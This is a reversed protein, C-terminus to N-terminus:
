KIRSLLEASPIKRQALLLASLKRTMENVESQSGPKKLLDAAQKLPRRLAAITEAGYEEESLNELADTVTRLLSLEIATAKIELQEAKMFQASIKLVGTERNWSYQNESLKKGDLTVEIEKPLFCGDNATLKATWDTNTQPREAEMSIKDLKETVQIAQITPVSAAEITLNQGLLAEAKVTIKGTKSSYVYDKDSVLTRDDLTVKITEPLSTYAEASLTGKWETWTSPENSTIILGELETHLTVPEIRKVATGSVTLRSGLLTEGPISVTGEERDYVYKSGDLTQEDLKVTITQPWAYWADPQGFHIIADSWTKLDPNSISVHDVEDVFEIPKSSKSGCGVVSLVETGSLADKGITITGAKSDYTWSESDLAEDDARLVITEPLDYWEPVSLQLILSEDQIPLSISSASLTLDKGEVSLDMRTQTTTLHIALAKGIMKDAPISLEGTRSNYSYDSSALEKGDISVSITENLAYRDSPVFVATFATNNKAKFEPVASLKPNGSLEVTIPSEDLIGDAQIQLTEARLASSSVTIKGSARDYAFDEGANLARDDAKLVITEPLLYGATPHLIASYETNTKLTDDSELTLHNLKEDMKMPQVVPIGSASLELKQGLLATGNVHISGATKDYTWVSDDLPTGDLKLVITEPLEFYANASLVATWDKWSVPKEGSITLNSLRSDVTLEIENHVATGEIRLQTFLAQEAKIRIEGASADFTYFDTNLEKGDAILRLDKAAPLGYFQSEPHLTIGLDQRTKLEDSQTSVHQIQNDLQISDHREAASAEITLIEAGNLQDITLTVTGTEKNWTYASSALTSNDAKHIVISEPLDCFSDAQLHLEATKTNASLAISNESLSLHNGTLNVDIRTQITHVVIKLSTGKLSEAPISLNGTDAQYTYLSSDLLANDMYVEVSDSLAYRDKAIFTQKFDHNKQVQVDPDKLTVHDIGEYTLPIQREDLVAKARITLSSGKLYSGHIEIKASSGIGGEVSYTFADEPLPQGDVLLEITQPCLYGSAATLVASFDSNTKPASDTLTLHEDLEKVLEMDVKLDVASASVKVSDGSLADGSITITGTEKNYTFAEFPKGDMTVDISDPLGYWAATPCLTGQWDTWTKLSEGELSLNHLDKELAMNQVVKEPTGSIILEYFRMQSAPITIIGTKNDYAFQDSSLVKGDGNLEVTKPYQINKADPNLELAIKGDQLTKLSDASAHFGSINVTVGVPDHIESASATIKLVCGTSLAEQTFTLSGTQSNYTYSNPDLVKGDRLVSVSQPLSYFDDAILEVTNENETLKLETKSLHLYTGELELAMKERLDAVGRIVIKGPQNMLESSLTITGDMQSYTYLSSNVPSNNLLVELSEPLQYGSDAILSVICSGDEQLEAREAKMNTLATALETRDKLTLRYAKENRAYDGIVLTYEGDGLTSFQFDISATEGPADGSQPVDLDIQRGNSDFLAAAAVYQNDQLTLSLTKKAKDAKASVLEPEADDITFPFLLVQGDKLNGAEVYENKKYWDTIGVSEPLAYEGYYYLTDESLGQLITNRIRTQVSLENWSEPDAPDVCYPKPMYLGYQGNPTLMDHDADFIGGDYIQANRVLSFTVNEFPQDSNIASKTFDEYGEEVLYPNGALYRSEKTSNGSVQLMNTYIRGNEDKNLVYTNLNPDKASEYLSVDEFMDPEDWDGFFGLIPISYVTENQAASGDAPNLFLYGEVYAGEPTESNLKQKEAETLSFPITVTKTEHADLSVESWSSNAQALARTEKLLSGEEDVAQTFLDVSPQFSLAHDSLNQITFSVSYSGSKAPDDGLEAKVKGDSATRCVSEDMEILVQANYMDDMQIEGAGQVLVSVYNGSRDKMPLATSMALSHFLFRNSKGTQEKLGLEKIRNTMAASIGSVAPAAMSTGTMFVYSDEYDGSASLIMQGPASIEPKLELLETVGWSSSDSMEMSSDSMEMSISSSDQSETYTQQNANAVCLSNSLTGPSGATAFMVDGSKLKGNTSAADAWAGSNGASASFVIDQSELNNMIQELSERDADDSLAIGAFGASNSGLSMNIADCQLTIADELAAFYDSEYAGGHAGFVKMVLIQADPAYGCMRSSEGFSGDANETFRIGSSIGTVHTGHDGQYDGNHDIRINGDVYNYGFPVKENRYLIDATQSSDKLHLTDIVEGIKQQDLLDLKEKYDALSMNERQADQRLAENYADPDFLEHEVNLGTDVVATRAGQGYAGHDAATQAGTVPEQPHGGIQISMEVASGNQVEEESPSAQQERYISSVFDLAEIKSAQSETVYLSVANASLDLRQEVEPNWGGFVKRGIEKLHEDQIKAIKERLAIVSEDEPSWDKGELQEMVCPEKFFIMARFVENSHIVSVSGSSQAPYQEPLSYPNEIEEATILYSGETFETALIPLNLASLSLSGSLCLAAARSFRNRTRNKGM